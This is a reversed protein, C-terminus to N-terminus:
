GAIAITCGPAVCPQTPTATITSNTGAQNSHSLANVSISYLQGNTLNGITINKTLISVYEAMIITMTSGSGTYLVVFYAFVEAMGSPDSVANWSIDLSANGPTAVLGSPASPSTLNKSIPYIGGANFQATQVASTCTPPTVSCNESGNCAWGYVYDIPQILGPSTVQIIKVWPNVKVDLCATYAGLSITTGQRFQTQCYGYSGSNNVLAMMFTNSGDYYATADKVNLYASM